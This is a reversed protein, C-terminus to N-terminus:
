SIRAASDRSSSLTTLHRIQNVTHNEGLIHPEQISPHQHGPAILDIPGKPLPNLIEGHLVPMFSGILTITGAFNTKSPLQSFPAM